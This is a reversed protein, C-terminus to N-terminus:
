LWVVWGVDAAACYWRQVGATPMSLLDGRANIYCFPIPLNGDFIYPPNPPDEMPVRRVDQFRM